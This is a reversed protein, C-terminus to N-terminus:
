KIGAYLSGLMDDAVARLSCIRAASLASAAVEVVFAASLQEIGEAVVALFGGVEAAARFRQKGVDLLEFRFKAVDIAGFYFRRM